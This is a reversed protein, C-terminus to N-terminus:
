ASDGWKSLKIPHIYLYDEPFSETLLALSNKYPLLTAHDAQTWLARGRLSLDTETIVIGSSLALASPIAIEVFLHTVSFIGCLDAFRRMSGKPVCFIDSYSGVLPYNLPFLQQGEVTDKRLNPNVLWGPISAPHLGHRALLLTAEDVSPLLGKIEIGSVNPNWLVADRCRWWFDRCKHFEIWGPIFSTTENVGLLMSFNSENIQPNLFLDDAIFLFSDCDIHELTQYAQAIYGQFYHSNEYVPIINSKPDSYFPMLHFIRSFRGGYLSEIRRVNSLYQHNYIVVLAPRNLM